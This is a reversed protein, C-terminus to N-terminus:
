PNFYNDPMPAVRLFATQTAGAVNLKRTIRAGEGNNIISDVIPVWDPTTLSSAGYIRYNYNRSGTWGLQLTAPGVLSV